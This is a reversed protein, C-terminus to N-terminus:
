RAVKAAPTAGFERDACRAHALYSPGGTSVNIFHARAAPQGRLECFNDSHRKKSIFGKLCDWHTGFYAGGDTAHLVSDDAEGCYRCAMAEKAPKAVKAPTSPWFGFPDSATPTKRTQVHPGALTALAALTPQLIESKSGALAALTPAEKAPKAVKAPTSGRNQLFARPDFGIASAMTM